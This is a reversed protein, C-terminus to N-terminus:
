RIYRDLKASAADDADYDIGGFRLFLAVAPRLETLFEGNGGRMREYVPRLLWPRVLARRLRRPEPWPQPAIGASLQGLVAFPADLVGDTRRDVVTSRDRLAHDTEPDLVVEGARAMHEAAALRQVTKGALVDLLQIKPDGVLFRRVPGSAIAVKISLAVTTGDPIPVAAFRQMAAQMAFGCAVARQGDDGDFWCTIADGSFGIVSGHNRDVEAILADYVHNLQRPLEDAGRQPGLSRVLADTLPTFGSIDAFLAAGHTREPLVEGHALAFRRDIPIYAEPSEM